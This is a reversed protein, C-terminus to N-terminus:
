QVTEGSCGRKTATLQHYTQLLSPTPPPYRESSSSMDMMLRDCPKQHPAQRFIFHHLLLTFSRGHCVPLRQSITGFVAFSIRCPTEATLTRPGVWTPGSQLRKNNQTPWESYFSSHWSPPPDMMPMRLSLRIAWNFNIAWNISVISHRRNIEVARMTRELVISHRINLHVHM